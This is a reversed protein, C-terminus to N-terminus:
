ILEDIEEDSAKDSRRTSPSLFSKKPTIKPSKKQTRYVTWDYSNGSRRRVRSQPVMRIMPERPVPTKRRNPRLLPHISWQNQPILM